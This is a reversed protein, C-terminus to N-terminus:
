KRPKQLEALRAKVLKAVLTPSPPRDPPFRITGKSTEYKKLDVAHARIVAPSFPFLSSHHAAATFGMLPRGGFKFTPMGYSFGEEADPAAARIAKRLRQLGSRVKPSLSALYADIDQGKPKTRGQSSSARKM